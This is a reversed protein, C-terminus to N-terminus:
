GVYALDEGSILFRENALLKTFLNALQDQTQIFSISVENKLVNDSLFHHKVDIHKSKSHTIPNKALNIVSTNDCLIKCESVKISFYLFCIKM